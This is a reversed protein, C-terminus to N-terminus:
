LIQRSGLFFHAAYSIHLLLGHSEHVQLSTETPAQQDPQQAVLFLMPGMSTGPSDDSCEIDAQDPFWFRGM